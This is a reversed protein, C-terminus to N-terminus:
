GLPPSARRVPPVTARTGRRRLAAPASPPALPGAAHATSHAPSPCPQPSTPAARPTFPPSLHATMALGKSKPRVSTPGRRCAGAGVSACGFRATTPAPSRQPRTPPAHRATPLSTRRCSSPRISRNFSGASRIVASLRLRSASARRSARSGLRVTLPTSTLPAGHRISHTCSLRVRHEPVRGLLHLAPSGTFQDVPRLRLPGRERRDGCGTLGPPRKFPLNFIPAAVSAQKPRLPRHPRQAVLVPLDGALPRQLPVDGPAFPVLVFQRPRLSRAAPSHRADAPFPTPPVCSPIPRGPANWATLKGPSCASCCFSKARSTAPSILCNALSLRWRFRSPRTTRAASTCCRCVRASPPKSSSEFRTSRGRGCSACSFVAPVSACNRNM